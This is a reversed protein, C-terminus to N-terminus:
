STSSTFVQAAWSVVWILVAVATGAIAFGRADDVRGRRRRLAFWEFATFVTSVGLLGM